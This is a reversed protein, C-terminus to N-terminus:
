WTGGAATPWPWKQTPEMPGTIAALAAQQAISCTASTFQGQMKNCAKAVALPAAIYGVRWGTMAFGKSFGNVVVTREKMYPVNAISAHSTEFNIYEYIEDSVVWIDERDKIIDSLAELEEQSFVSGTPNCPSSFLLLKTKPTIAAALQGPTVKFDNDLSGQLLVPVAGALKVQELYTVWYPTFIL